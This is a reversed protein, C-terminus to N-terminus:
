LLPSFIARNSSYMERGNKRGEWFVLHVISIKGSMTLYDSIMSKLFPTSGVQFGMGQLYTM